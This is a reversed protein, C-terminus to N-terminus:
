AISDVNVEGIRVWVNHDGEPTREVRLDTNPIELHAPGEVGDLYDIMAAITVQFDDSTIKPADYGEWQKGLYEYLWELDYALGSLTSM